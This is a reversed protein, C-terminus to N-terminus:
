GHGHHDSAFFTKEVAVTAVAALLGWKAGRFFAKFIRQNHTGFQKESYRWVENRLWPDKLGQSALAKQTEILPPADAIKYIQWDPIKYNPAGGGGM